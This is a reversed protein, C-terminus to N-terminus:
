KIEQFKREADLIVKVARYVEKGYETLRYYKRKKEIKSVEIIGVKQLIRLKDTIMLISGVKKIIDVQYAEGLDGVAEIVRLTLPTILSKFRM